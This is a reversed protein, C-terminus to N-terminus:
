RNTEAPGPEKWFTVEYVMRFWILIAPVAKIVFPQLWGNRFSEPFADTQALTTFLFFLLILVTDTTTRQKAFYWIAAGVAAIIFTPSEAM